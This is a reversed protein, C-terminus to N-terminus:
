WYYWSQWGWSQVITGSIAQQKKDLVTSFGVSDMDGLCFSVNICVCM